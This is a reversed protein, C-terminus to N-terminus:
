SLSCIGRPREKLIVIGRQKRLKSIATTSEDQSFPANKSTRSTTDVKTCHKGIEGDADANSTYLVRKVCYMHICPRGNPYIESLPELMFQEKAASTAVISFMFCKLILALFLLAFLDSIRFLYINDM